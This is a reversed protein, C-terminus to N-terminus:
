RRSAKKKTARRPPPEDDDEDEADDDDDDSLVEDEDAEEEEYDETEDEDEEEEDRVKRQKRGLMTSLVNAPKPKKISEWDYLKVDKLAQLVDEPIDEDPLVQFQYSTSTGTGSRGIQVVSNFISVRKPKECKSCTLVEFLQGRSIRDEVEDETMKEVAKTRIKGEANKYGSVTIKGKGCNKCKRGAQRNTADLAAVHMPPYELCVHGARVFIGKRTGAETVDDESVTEYKYREKGDRESRRKDITKKQWRMDYINFCAKETAKGVRKDGEINAECLVCGDEGACM